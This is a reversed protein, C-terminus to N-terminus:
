YGYAGVTVIIQQPFVETFFGGCTFSGFQKTLPPCSKYAFCGANAVTKFNHTQIRVGMEEKHLKQSSNLKVPVFLPFM